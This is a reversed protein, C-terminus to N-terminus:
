LATYQAAGDRELVLEPVMVTSMDTPWMRISTDM